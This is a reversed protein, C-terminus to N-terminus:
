VTDSIFNALANSFAVRRDNGTGTFVNRIKFLGGRTESALTLTDHIQNASRSWNPAITSRTITYTTPGTFTVYGFPQSSASGYFLVGDYGDTSTYSSLAIVRYGRFVMEGSIGNITRQTYTNFTSSIIPPVDVLQNIMNGPSGGQEDSNTIIITTSGNRVNSSLVSGFRGATGTSIANPSTFISWLNGHVDETNLDPSGSLRGSTTSGIVDTCINVVHSTANSFYNTGIWKAITETGTAEGRMFAQSVNLTGNSNTITFVSSPNRSYYNFYAYLNPYRILDSGVSKELLANQLAGIFQGNSYFESVDGMSGSQDQHIIVNVGLSRNNGKFLIPSLNSVASGHLAM